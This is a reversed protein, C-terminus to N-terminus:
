RCSITHFCDFVNKFAVLNLRCDIWNKPPGAALVAAADISTQNYADVVQKTTYISAGSRLPCLNFNLKEPCM